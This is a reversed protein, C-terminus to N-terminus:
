IFPLQNSLENNLESQTFKATIYALKEAMKIVHPVRVGNQCNPYLYSTWYTLQILLEPFDVNGYAVHFYTPIACGEDIKVSQIYFEFRNKNTIQDLVILGQEPNEYIINNLFDWNM